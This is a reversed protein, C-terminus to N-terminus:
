DDVEIVEFDIDEVDSLPYDGPNSLNLIENGLHYCSCGYEGAEEAEAETDFLEEDLDEEGDSYTYKVQYKAM